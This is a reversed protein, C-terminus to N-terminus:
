TRKAKQKAMRVKYSARADFVEIPKGARTKFSGKKPVQAYARRWADEFVKPVSIPRVENTVFMM